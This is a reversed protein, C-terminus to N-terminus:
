KIGKKLQEIQNDILITAKFKAKHFGNTYNDLAITLNNIEDCSVDFRYIMDKVKELQEVALQNHFIMDHEELEVIQQKLQEIEKEYGLSEQVVTEHMSQLHDYKEDLRAYNDDLVQHKQNKKSLQKRLEINQESIQVNVRKLDEVENTLNEIMKRTEHLFKSM